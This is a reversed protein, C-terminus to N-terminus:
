DESQVRTGWPAQHSKRTVLPVSTTRLSIKPAEPKPPSRDPGALVFRTAKGLLWIVVAAIGLGSAFIVGTDNTPQALILVAGALLVGAVILCGWHVVLGFRGAMTTTNRASQKARSYAFMLVLIVGMSIYVDPQVLVQLTANFKDAATVEVPM